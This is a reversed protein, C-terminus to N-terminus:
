RVLSGDNGMKSHSILDGVVCLQAVTKYLPVHLQTVAKCLMVHLSKLIM